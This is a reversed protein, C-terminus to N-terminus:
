IYIYVEIPFVYMQVLWPNKLPSLRQNEPHHFEATGVVPAGPKEASESM